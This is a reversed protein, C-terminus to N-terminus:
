ALTLVITLFTAFITSFNDASLKEDFTLKKTDRVTGLRYLFGFLSMKRATQTQTLRLQTNQETIVFSQTSKYHAYTIYHKQLILMRLINSLVSCLVSVFASIDIAQRADILISFYNYGIVTGPNFNLVDFDTTPYEKKLSFVFVDHSGIYTEGRIHM